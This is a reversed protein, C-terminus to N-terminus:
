AASLALADADCARERSIWIDQDGVFGCSREVHRNLGLDQIKQCAQLPLPSERDHENRVIELDHSIEGRVRNDHIPAPDDLATPRRLEHSVRVVGVRAEQKVGLVGVMAIGDPVWSVLREVVVGTHERM